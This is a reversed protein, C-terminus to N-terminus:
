FHSLQFQGHALIPNEDFANAAAPLLQGLKNLPQTGVCPLFFSAPSTVHRKVREKM